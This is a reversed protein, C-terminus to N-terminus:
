KKKSESLQVLETAYIFTDSV